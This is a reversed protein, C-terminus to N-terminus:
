HSLLEFRELWCRGDELRLEVNGQQGVEPKVESAAIGQVYAVFGESGPDICGDPPASASMRVIVSNPLAELAVVTAQRVVIREVHRALTMWVLAGLVIVSAGIGACAKPDIVRMNKWGSLHPSKQRLALVNKRAASETAM